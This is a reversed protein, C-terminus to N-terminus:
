HIKGFFTVKLQCFVAFEYKEPQRKAAPYFLIGNFENHFTLLIDCKNQKAYKNYSAKNTILKPHPRGSLKAILQRARPPVVFNIHLYSSIGLLIM